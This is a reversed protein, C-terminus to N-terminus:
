HLRTLLYFDFGIAELGKADLVQGEPLRGRLKFILASDGVEQSYTGRNPTVTAQLLESLLRATAEHGIYSEFSGKALECAQALSIPEYVYYGAATLIPSNLIALKAM